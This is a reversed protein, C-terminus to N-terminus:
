RQTADVKNIGDKKDSVFPQLGEKSNMVKSLLCGKIQHNTLRM